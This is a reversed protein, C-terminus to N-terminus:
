NHKVEVGTAKEIKHEKRKAKRMKRMSKKYAHKSVKKYMKNSTTYNGTYESTKEVSINAAVNATSDPCVTIMNDASNVSLKYTEPVAKVDKSTSLLLPASPYPDPVGAVAYAAEKRKHHKKHYYVYVNDTSTSTQGNATLTLEKPDSTINVPATVCATKPQTNPYFANGCKAMLYFYNGNGSAIKWAKFESANGELRAYTLGYGASGMNGETGVPVYYASVNAETVDKAGNEFGVAMLLQNLQSMGETNNDDNRKMTAVVQRPSSLNRMFPFEPATGLKTIERPSSTNDFKFLANDPATTQAFSATAAFMASILIIRKM